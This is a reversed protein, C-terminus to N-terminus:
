RDSYLATITYSITYRSRSEIAFTITYSQYGDPRGNAGLTEILPSVPLIVFDSNISRIELRWGWSGYLSTSNDTFVKISCIACFSDVPLRISIRPKPLKESCKRGGRMPRLGFVPSDTASEPLYTGCKLGPFSNRSRTFLLIQIDDKAFIPLTWPPLTLPSLFGEQKDTIIPFGEHLSNRDQRIPLGTNQSNEHGDNTDLMLTWCKHGILPAVGRYNNSLRWRSAMSDRIPKTSTLNELNSSERRSQRVRKKAKGANGVQFRWGCKTKVVTEVRNRRQM